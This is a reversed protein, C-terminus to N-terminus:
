VYTMIDSRFSTQRCFTQAANTTPCGSDQSQLIGHHGAFRQNSVETDGSPSNISSRDEDFRLTWLHWYRAMDLWWNRLHRRCKCLIWSIEFCQGETQMETYSQYLYRLKPTWMSGRNRQRERFEVDELSSWSRKLLALRQLDRSKLSAWCCDKKGLSSVKLTQTQTVQSM